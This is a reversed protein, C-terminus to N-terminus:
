CVDELVDPGRLIKEPRTAETIVEIETRWITNISLAVNEKEWVTEESRCM